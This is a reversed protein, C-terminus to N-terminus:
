APVEERLRYKLVKGVANRPLAAVVDVREPLKFKAVKRADLFSVVDDLTPKADGRPTVVARVKEGMVPDPYGVVAVEAIMPHGALLGEIEEPAINMGGRIILDKARGVFRYYRAAGNGDEAIEFLDGTCFFGDADFAEANAEPNKWYGAFVMGGKIRLEGRRGPRDITEGIELDVLKTSQQQAVRAKWVNGGAGFRPFFEARKEPKPFDEIGSVLCVGENSGFLNTVPIGRDSWGRVMSPPLPASGSGIVRLSSIDFKSLLAENMLLMSLLAPPAVTYVPKETQVQSLFVPLDLPHHNILVGGLILWPVIMGGIGAMNVLPFPNLMRAGPKLGAGDITGLAICLWENHSRPVAKPKGTTGSTFCLTIIEDASHRSEARRRELAAPDAQTGVVAALPLISVASGLAARVIPESVSNVIFVSPEIFESLQKLEYERYQMPFPAIIAGVRAVGLYAAVLEAVNHMQVAVVGDARVGAAILATAMRDVLSDLDTWTLRQPSSGDLNARNPPDLLALGSPNEKVRRRFIDDITDDGWWGRAHYDAIKEAGSLKM